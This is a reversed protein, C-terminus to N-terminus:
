DLPVPTLFEGTKFYHIINEATQKSKRDTSEETNFANHPTCIVDPRDMLQLTAEVSEKVAPEAIDTKSIEGRLLSGLTSEEEYVDLGVGSLTKGDLLQVLDQPPTIEGRAINVLIPRNQCKELVEANLMRDTEETLPLACM